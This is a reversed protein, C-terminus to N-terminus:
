ELFIARRLVTFPSYQHRLLNDHPPMQTRVEIYQDFDRVADVNVEMSKLRERQMKAVAQVAYGVASELIPLISGTGIASNPGLVMFMNPFEDVCMSLYSTPHQKWKENLVVGSRGIIDFPLQWSTDYGSAAILDTRDSVVSLIVYRDCLHRHRAQPTPWRGDPHGIAHIASHPEVRLGDTECRM